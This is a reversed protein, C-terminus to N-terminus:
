FSKFVLNTGFNNLNDLKGLYVEGYTGDISLWDGEQIKVEGIHAESTVLDIELEPEEAPRPERLPLGTREKDREVRRGLAAERQQAM